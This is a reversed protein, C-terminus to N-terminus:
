GGTAPAAATTARQHDVVDNLIRELDLQPSWGIAARVKDIAPARHLMDEIGQGYVRDYELFEVDSTSGTAQIVRQALDLIRIREQSGVNYIEGSTDEADMVGVLAGV